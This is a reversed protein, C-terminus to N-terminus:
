QGPMQALARDIRLAAKQIATGLERDITDVTVLRNRVERVQAKTMTKSNYLVNLGIGAAGAARIATGETKDAVITMALDAFHPDHLLSRLAAERVEKLEEGNKAIIVRQPVSERDTGLSLLAAIRVPAATDGGILTRFVDHNEGPAAAALVRTALKKSIGAQGMNRVISKLVEIAQDDKESAMVELSALRVAPPSSEDLMTARLAAHIDGKRDHGVKTFRVAIGLQKVLNLRLADGAPSQKKVIGVAPTIWNGSDQAQLASFAATRLSDSEQQDQAVSLLTDSHPSSSSQLAHIARLRDAWAQQRNAAVQAHEATAAALPTPTPPTSPPKVGFPVDDYCFGLDIGTADVGLYDIMMWVFPPNAVAPWVGPLASPPFTSDSPFVPPRNDLFGPGHEGNDNDWPWMSDQLHHGLPSSSGPGFSGTPFYHAEDAGNTGFRGHTWQWKAWLRDDDSHFLFFIPDRPSTRPNSMWTGVWGHGDNHPNSEIGASFNNGAPSRYKPRSLVTTESACWSLDSRDVSWRSLSVGGISWGLLPNGEAMTGFDVPVSNGSTSISNKGLFDKQFVTSSVDERWYHLALHPRTKQLEREYTLLFARHWPLFGPGSHAQDPWNAGPEHGAATTHLLVLEEYRGSRKLEAVGELYESRELSSLESANSRVRVMVECRADPIGGLPVRAVIVSDRGGKALSAHTLRSRTKGAVVFETPTGDQKVNVTISNQTATKGPTVATDFLLTGVDAAPPENQVTVALDPGTANGNELRILCRAPAWTLYDDTAEDTERVAIVLRPAQNEAMALITASEMFPEDGVKRLVEKGSSDRVITAHRPEGDYAGYEKFLKSEPDPVLVFPVPPFSQLDAETSASIVAVQLNRNALKEAMGILQSMCHPCGSGKVFFLVSGAGNATPITPSIRNKTQLPTRIPSVLPPGPPAPAIRVLEMMGNDEHDLIHCHDVFDGSFDDYRTLLEYTYGHKMALTDRWTAAGIERATVDVPAGPSTPEVLSTVKTILFPNTHIHFPHTVAAGNNRSGVLWRETANLPLVRPHTPDYPEANATSVPSASTSLDARSIFYGIPTLALELGYFAHRTGSVAAPLLDPLRHPALATPIPMTMSQPTGEVHIKVVWRLLEASGDAGTDPRPAGRDNETDVLYYDGEVAPAQLLVDSRYGSFMELVKNRPEPQAPGIGRISGTALGDVAIEHLTLFQPGTTSSPAREVRLRVRERQGSYVLRLRRIEGPAVVMTPIKKGNVTIYRRLDRFRGPAFMLTDNLNPDPTPPSREISGPATLSNKLYPIEQLVMVEEQAAAIESVSDLNHVADPREVILAGAMGSSVQATTSGHRHAHYWFTGAVHDAPIRVQYKKTSMVPDFPNSPPLELLVNDSEADPVGPPGQPAVHLGHFHLNTTNWDHHGNTEHSISAEVPLRNNLTIYIVDGARVRLTPGVLRHNYTRLRVEDNGITTTTYDVDLTVDLRGGSSRLELPSVDSASKITSNVASKLAGPPLAERSAEDLPDEELYRQRLLRDSPLERRPQRPGNMPGIARARDAPTPGATSPPTTADQAVAIWQAVVGATANGGSHAKTRVITGVIAPRQDVGNPWAPVVFGLYDYVWEEGGITGSGTFRMSVPTGVTVKGTLSLQWGTGGLTGTLNDPAAAALKMTGSGFLLDNPETNLNPDSVFSRYTWTGTVSALASNGGKAGTGEVAKVRDPGQASTWSSCCVTALVVVIGIVKSTCHTNM